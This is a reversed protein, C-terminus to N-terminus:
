DEKRKKLVWAALLALSLVIACVTLTDNVADGTDPMNTGSGSGGSIILVKSPGAQGPYSMAMVQYWAIIHSGSKIDAARAKIHGNEALAMIDTGEDLHLIIDEEKNLLDTKGSSVATVTKVIYDHAYDEESNQVTVLTHLYTQPPLSRTTAASHFARIPMGAALDSLKIANGDYASLFVTSSDVNFVLKSGDTLKVTIQGAAKDVEEISGTAEVLQPFDALAPVAVSLLLLASLILILTRKM